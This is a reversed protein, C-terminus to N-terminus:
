PARGPASPEDAGGRGPLDALLSRLEPVSGADRAAAVRREFEDPRMQDQASIDVLADLVVRRARELENM